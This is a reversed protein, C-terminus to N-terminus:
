GTGLIFGIYGSYDTDSPAGQGALLTAVTDNLVAVKKKSVDYGRRALESLLSAGVKKGIVEPAKIEKSFVLPIGDHDETIAAAYSFCFGIKDSKDILREVEDAFTSFFQQATVEEKVGPMSVKRFDEIHALGQEDFTVLCTRFNTGGADLVIVPEGKALGSVVETYTPIMKLSSGSENELGKEMESLFTALLSKMDISAAEIGWKSLFATTNQVCDSM